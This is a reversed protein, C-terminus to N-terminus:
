IIWLTLLYAVYSIVWAIATNYIASGVAWRWNLESGIAIITALCPLYLLSFILFAVATPLSMDRAIRRSVDVSLEDDSEPEIDSPEAYLVNMTSVVIEKAPIGSMLAVTSQWGMDMPAFVPECFQGIRGIYSEEYRHTEVGMDDTTRPYYSLLWIVVSAILILGGMKKIYQACKTWMHRVTTILMPVRYPSLEMVFPAEQERFMFRRMLRASIVALAMGFIYLLFLATGAHDPFFISVIMM